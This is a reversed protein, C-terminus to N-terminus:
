LNCCVTLYSATLPPLTGCSSSKSEWSFLICKGWTFFWGSCKVLSILTSVVSDMKGGKCGLALWRFSLNLFLDWIFLFEKRCNRNNSDAIWPKMLFCFFTVLLSALSKRLWLSIFNTMIICTCVVCIMKRYSGSVHEPWFHSSPSFSMISWQWLQFIM